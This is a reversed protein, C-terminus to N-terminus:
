AAKANTLASSTTDCHNNCCRCYFQQEMKVYHAGQFVTVFFSAFSRLLSDHQIESREMIVKHATSKQCCECYKQPM